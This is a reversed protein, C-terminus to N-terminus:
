KAKPVIDWFAEADRPKAMGRYHDYLMNPNSHGLQKCTEDITHTALYHTAFGHRM